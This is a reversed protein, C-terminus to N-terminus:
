KILFCKTNIGKGQWIIKFNLYRCCLNVFDKVSYAKGTAIVYDTPKKKYCKGNCKLMIKLM